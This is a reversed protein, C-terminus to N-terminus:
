PKGLENALDIIQNISLAEGRISHTVNMGDLISIILEKSIGPLDLRMLANHLTKRRFNFMTKVIQLFLLFDKIPKLKESKRTMMQVIASEIKPSPWFVSPPLTKLTEIECFYQSIVSLIGYDKTGPKATLRNTIDKQLTLIMNAIPLGSELLNIIVPTSISYPLNSVVKLCSKREQKVTTQGHHTDMDQLIFSIIDPDIHSKDIIVDRNILTVNSCSGVNECAFEYLQKDIEVSIVKKAKEALLQTLIGTGAGIELVIDNNDIQARNVMFRLLNHDILFNQGLRKNLRIKRKIIASKLWSLTQPSTKIDM